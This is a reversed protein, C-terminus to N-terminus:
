KYPNKSQKIKIECKLDNFYKEFLDKLIEYPLKKGIIVARLSKLPVTLSVFEVKNNYETENDKPPMYNHVCIRYEKEYRYDKNKIFPSFEILLDSIVQKIDCSEQSQIINYYLYLSEQLAASKSYNNYAVDGCIIPPHPTNYERIVDVINDAFCLCIGHHKDGYLSWMPLYDGKKSFCTIYPSHEKKELALLNAFENQPIELIKNAIRFNPHINERKEYADIVEVLDKQSITMETPDNVNDIRNAHLHFFYDEDEDKYTIGDLIKFFTELTTYHYYM